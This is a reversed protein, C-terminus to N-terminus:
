SAPPESPESSLRAIAQLNQCRILEAFELSARGELEASREIARILARAAAEAGYGRRQAISVAAEDAEIERSSNKNNQWVQRAAFATLGGAALIGLPDGQLTEAVTALTGAVAAGRYLDLTFWQVGTVWSVTRLLLLDRESRSLQSWYQLNLYVKRSRQWPYPFPAEIARERDGKAILKVSMRGSAPMLDRLHQIEKAVNM